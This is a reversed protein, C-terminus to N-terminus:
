HIASLAAGIALARPQSVTAKRSTPDCLCSICFAFYLCIVSPNLNKRICIEENIQQQVVKAWDVEIGEWTRIAAVVYKHEM